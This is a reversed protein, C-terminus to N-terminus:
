NGDVCDMVVDSIAALAGVPGLYHASSGSQRILRAVDETAHLGHNAFYGIVLAQGSVGRLVDPLGPAEELYAEHVDKFEKNRRMQAVHMSMALRSADDNPSGHGIVVVSTNGAVSGHQRCHTLAYESMLSTMKASLGLPRCQIVQQGNDRLSVAGDLRLIEPIVKKSFHGDSMLMPLIMVTASEVEAVVDKLHPECTLYGWRIRNFRGTAELLAVLEGHARMSAPASPGRVGHSVLVLDAGKRLVSM